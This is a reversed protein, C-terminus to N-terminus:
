LIMTSMNNDLSRMADNGLKMIVCNNYSPRIWYKINQYMTGLRGLLLANLINYVLELKWASKTLSRGM